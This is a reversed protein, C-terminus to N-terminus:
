GGYDSLRGALHSLATKFDCHHLKMYVDIVSHWKEHLECHPSKCNITNSPVHWSLSETRDDHFPCFGKYHYAGSRTFGCDGLIEYVPISRKIKTSIQEGEAVSFLFTPLTDDNGKKKETATIQEIGIESVNDITLFPADNHVQYVYGSSHISGPMQAFHGYSWVEIKSDLSHKSPLKEPLNSCFLHLHYGDKTRVTFTNELIPYESILKTYATVSDCDLVLHNNFGTLLAVNTYDPYRRIVKIVDYFVQREHQWQGWQYKLGHGIPTLLINFGQAFYPIARELIESM